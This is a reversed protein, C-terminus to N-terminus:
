VVTCLKFNIIFASKLACKIQAIFTCFLLPGLGAGVSRYRPTGSRPYGVSRRQGGGLTVV